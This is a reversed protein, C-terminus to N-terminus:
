PTQDPGAAVSMFRRHTSLPPTCRPGDGVWACLHPCVTLRDGSRWNGQTDYVGTRVIGPNTDDTVIVEGVCESLEYLYHSYAHRLGRM